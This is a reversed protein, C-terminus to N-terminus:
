GAVPLFLVLGEFLFERLEEPYVCVPTEAGTCPNGRGRM